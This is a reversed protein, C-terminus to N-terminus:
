RQNVKARERRDLEEKMAVAYDGYEDEFSMCAAGSFADEDMGPSCEGGELENEIRREIFAITRRLHTSPMAKIAVERGNRQTWMSDRTIM